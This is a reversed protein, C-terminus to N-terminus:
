MPPPRRSVRGRWLWHGLTTLAWVLGAAVAVPGALMLAWIAFIGLIAVLGSVNQGSMDCPYANGDGGPCGIVGGLVTLFVYSLIWIVVPGITLVALIRHVWRM